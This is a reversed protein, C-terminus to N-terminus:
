YEEWGQSFLNPEENKQSQVYKFAKELTKDGIGEVRLLGSISNIDERAFANKIKKIIDGRIKSEKKITEDDVLFFDEKFNQYLDDSAYPDFHWIEIDIDCNQLYNKMLSIVKDPNLGGKDAGLLPFAVSTIGRQKYTKLFNELGQKIYKEESPLKWHNKTPFNLVYRDKAKYLWLKGISISKDKCHQQYKEFMDPYRLRFEYAIGAGMVGVCNITNVITQAKTTFINGKCEKIM